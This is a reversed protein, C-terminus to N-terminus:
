ADFVFTRVDPRRTAWWILYLIGPVIYIVALIIFILFDFKRKPQVMKLFDDGQQEVTYGKETMRRMVQRRREAVPRTTDAQIQQLAALDAGRKRAADYLYWVYVGAVALIMLFSAWVELIDM